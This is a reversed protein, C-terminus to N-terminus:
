AQKRYLKVDMSKLGWRRAQYFYKMRVDIHYRGRAWSRRMAPGTDDVKRFGIGPIHVLTGYPLAGPYAACGDMKWANGGTSTKGDAFRGCCRKSPEYATVRAKVTKWYVYGEPVPETTEDAPVALDLDTELRPPQQAAEVALSTSPDLTAPTGRDVSAASAAFFLAVVTFVAAKELM